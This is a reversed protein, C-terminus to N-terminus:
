PNACCCNELKKKGDCILDRLEKAAESPLGTMVLSQSKYFDEEPKPGHVELIRKKCDRYVLAPAETKPQCFYDNCCHAIDEPLINELCLRKLWQSRVGAFELRIELRAFWARVDKRDFAIKINRAEKAADAEDVTNVEDYNPLYM